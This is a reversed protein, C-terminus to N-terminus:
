FRDLTMNAKKIIKLEYCFVINVDRDGRPYVEDNANLKETLKFMDKRNRNVLVAEEDRSTEIILILNNNKSYKKEKITGKIKAQKEYREKAVEKDLIKLLTNDFM